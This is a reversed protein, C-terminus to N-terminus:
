PTPTATILAGHRVYITESVVAPCNSSDDNTGWQAPCQDDECNHKLCPDFLTQSGQQGRYAMCFETLHKVNFVDRYTLDGWVFMKTQHTKTQQTQSKGLDVIIIPEAKPPITGGARPAQTFTPYSFDKPLDTARTCVNGVVVASRAQTIGSNQLHINLHDVTPNAPDEIIEAGTAYLFARQVDILGERTLTLAKQTRRLGKRSVDWQKISIVALVITFLAVVGAFAVELTRWKDAM